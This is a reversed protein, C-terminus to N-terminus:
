FSAIRHNTTTTAPKTKKGIPKQLTLTLLFRMANTETETHTVGTDGRATM